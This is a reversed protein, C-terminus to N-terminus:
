YSSKNLTFKPKNHLRLCQEHENWKIEPEFGAPGDPGSVRSSILFLYMNM